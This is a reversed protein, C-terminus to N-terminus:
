APELNVYGTTFCIESVLYQIFGLGGPTALFLFVLPVGIMPPVIVPTGVVFRPPCFVVNALLVEM